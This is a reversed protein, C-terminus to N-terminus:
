GYQMREIIENMLESATELNVLVNNVKYMKDSYIFSQPHKNSIDRIEDRLAELNVLANCVKQKATIQPEEM